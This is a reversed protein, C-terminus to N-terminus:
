SPPVVSVMNQLFLGKDGMSQIELHAVHSHWFQLWRAKIAVQQIAATYTM